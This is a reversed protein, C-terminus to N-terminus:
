TGTEVVIFFSGFVLCVVGIALAMWEMVRRYRVGGPARGQSEGIEWLLGIFQRHFRALALGSLVGFVGLFVFVASDSSAAMVRGAM